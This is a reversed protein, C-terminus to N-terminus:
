IMTKNSRCNPIYKSFNDTVSPTPSCYVYVSLTPSTYVYISLTPCTYTIMSNLINTILKFKSPLNVRSNTAISVATVHSILIETVSTRSFLAPFVAVAWTDAKQVARGGTRGGARGRPLQTM